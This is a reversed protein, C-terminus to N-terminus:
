VSKRRKWEELSKTRRWNELPKTKNRNSIIEKQEKRWAVPKMSCNSVGHNTIAHTTLQQYNRWIATTATFCDLPKQEETPMASYAVKHHGELVIASAFLDTSPIDTYIMALSTGHILLTNVYDHSRATEIISIYGEFGHYTPGQWWPM